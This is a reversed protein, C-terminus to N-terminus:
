LEAPFGGNGQEDPLRDKQKVWKLMSVDYGRRRACDLLHRLTDHSLHPTRSLLWLYRPTDSGILAYRYHREDIELINYEAYFKWFYTIKMKGPCRPDVQRAIGRAKVCPGSFDDCYGCTVVEITSDPKLTYEVTSGVLNHEFHYDLRAIEFWKGMYRQVDLTKVTEKDITNKVCSINCLLFLYLLITSKLSM